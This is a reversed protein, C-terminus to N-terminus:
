EIPDNNGNQVQGRLSGTEYGCGTCCYRYFIIRGGCVPCRWKEEQSQLWEEIGQKQIESLNQYIEHRYRYKEDKPHSNRLKGITNCPFDPCQSCLNLCKELLCCRRISCHWKSTRKQKRDESGCGRCTMGFSPCAGCYVGCPAMMDPLRGIDPM